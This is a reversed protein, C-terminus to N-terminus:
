SQSRISAHIAYASPRVLWERHRVLVAGLRIAGETIAEIVGSPDVADRGIM